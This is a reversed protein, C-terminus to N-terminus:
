SCDIRDEDSAAEPEDGLRASLEDLHEIGVVAVVDSTARLETLRTAMWEERVEDILSTSRPLDVVRLFTRRETVHSREHEAQTAPSDYSACDYAIHTYVKPTYPTLRGIVAGFRCALAQGAGKVVDRLVELADERPLREGIVRQALRRFYAANPGDIGVTRVDGATQMATSMEGGLRPPVYEDDAYHRFLPVALSPLELALVDPSVTKLVHAVRAVSAPHDHAVGILLVEGRGNGAPHRRVYQQLRPDDAEDGAIHEGAPCDSM